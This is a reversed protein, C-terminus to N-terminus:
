IKGQAALSCYDHNGIICHDLVRVGISHMIQSLQKTLVLDEPSPQSDGSPHNHAFIVAAANYELAKRVIERPYVNASDISGYFLIELKLIRHKSDLFLAVFVENPYDRLTDALYSCAIKPDTIAQGRTLENKNQRKAIELAAQLQIYKATGLGKYQCFTEMDSQLLKKLGGFKSLLERALDVATKGRTGTRLFIALLEADSLNETGFQLARERPRELKPWDKITHNSDQM